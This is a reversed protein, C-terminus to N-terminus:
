QKKPHKKEGGRSSGRLLVDNSETQDRIGGDERRGAGFIRGRGKVQRRENFRAM